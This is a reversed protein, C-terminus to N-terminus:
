KKLILDFKNDCCPCTLIIVKDSHSYHLVYDHETNCKPCQAQLNTTM